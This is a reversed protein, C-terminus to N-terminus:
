GNSRSHEARGSGRVDVAEEGGDEHSAGPSALVIEVRGNHGPAQHAFEGVHVQNSFDERQEDVLCKEGHKEAM